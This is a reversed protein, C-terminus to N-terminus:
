WRDRRRMLVKVTIWAGAVIIAILVLWGWIQALFELAITLAFIGALILMCSTFFRKTMPQQEKKKNTDKQPQDPFLFSM